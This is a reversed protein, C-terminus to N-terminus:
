EGWKTVFALNAGLMEVIRGMDYFLDLVRSDKESIYTSLEVINGANAMKRVYPNLTLKSFKTNYNIGFRKAVSKMDGVIESYGNLVYGVKTKDPYAHSRMWIDLKKQVVVDQSFVVLIFDFEEYVYKATDNDLSSNMDTILFGYDDLYPLANLFLKDGESDSMSSNSTLLIDVKPALATLYNRFEPADIAGSSLLQNLQSASKTVDDEEEINLFSRTSLYDAGTATICVREDTAKALALGLLMSVTTEGQRRSPGVVGIKIAM